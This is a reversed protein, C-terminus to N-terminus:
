SPRCSFSLAHHNKSGCFSCLHLRDSQHQPCHQGKINFNICLEKSEPSLLQGKVFKAWTPKGDPFKAPVKDKPHNFLTHGREACLICTPPASAKSGGNQFLPRSDSNDRRSSSSFKNSHFLSDKLSKMESAIKTWESKAIVRNEYKTIAAAYATKYDLLEIRKKFSRSDHQLTLEAHKWAEYSEASDPQNDFFRFHDHWWSVWLSDAARLSQFNFLQSAAQTFHGYDLSLEAGLTTSLKEVDLIYCGKSEGPLPNAKRTPLLATNDTIYRLNQHTFFPLPIACYRETDFMIQPFDFQTPELANSDVLSAGFMCRRKAIRDEELNQPDKRSEDHKRKESRDRADELGLWELIFNPMINSLSAMVSPIRLLKKDASDITVISAQESGAQPHNAPDYM